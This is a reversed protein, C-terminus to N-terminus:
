GIYEATYENLLKLPQYSTKAKRLGENGMDEERNVFTCDSFRNKLFENNIAAYSGIYETNAFEVHILATNNAIREGLSCAIAKGDVELIAGCVGLKEFNELLTFTATQSLSLFEDPETKEAYWLRFLAKCQETDEPKLSRYVATYNRRFANLHNKKSHLKKGSLNILKSTEYIYDSNDRDYDIRFKTGFHKKVALVASENLAYFKPTIGLNKMFDTAKTVAKEIYDEECLPFLMSKKESFESLIYLANEDTAIKIKGNQGWIYNTTFNYSSMQNNATFKDFIFKDSLTINRFEM